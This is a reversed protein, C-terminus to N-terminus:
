ALPCVPVKKYYFECLAKCFKCLFTQALFKMAIEDLKGVLNKIQLTMQPISMKVFRSIVVKSVIVKSILVLLHAIVKETLLLAM